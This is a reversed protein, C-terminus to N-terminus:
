PLTHTCEPAEAFECIDWLLFPPVMSEGDEGYVHQVTGESVAWLCGSPLYGSHSSPLSLGPIELCWLSEHSMHQATMHSLLFGSAPPLNMLGSTAIDGESYTM